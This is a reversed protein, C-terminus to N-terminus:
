LESKTTMGFAKKMAKVEDSTKNTTTKSEFLLERYIGTGVNKAAHIRPVTWPLDVGNAPQLVEGSVVFSMTGTADFSFLYKGDGGWVALKSPESALFSYDYSHIHMSTMEGPLLTFNWVRTFDDEFIVHSGVYEDIDCKSPLEQHEKLGAHGCVGSGGPDTLDQASALSALLIAVIAM